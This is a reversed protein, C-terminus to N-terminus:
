RTAFAVRDSSRTRDLLGPHDQGLVSRRRARSPCAALKLGIADYPLFTTPRKFPTDPRRAAKAARASFQKQM